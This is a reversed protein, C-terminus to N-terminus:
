CTRLRTCYRDAPSTVDKRIDYKQSVDLFSIKRQLLTTVPERMDLHIQVVIDYSFFFRFIGRPVLHVITRARNGNTCFRTHELHRRAQFRRQRSRTLACSM